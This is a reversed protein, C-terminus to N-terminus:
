IIAYMQLELYIFYITILYNTTLIRDAGPDGGADTGAASLKEGHGACPSVRYRLYAGAGTQFRFSNM